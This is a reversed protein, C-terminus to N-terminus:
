VFDELFIPQVNTKRWIDNEHDKETVSKYILRQTEMYQIDM